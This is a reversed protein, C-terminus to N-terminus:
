PGSSSSRQPPGSTPRRSGRLTPASSTPRASRTPSCPAGCQPARRPAGGTSFWVVMAALGVLTIVLATLQGSSLSGAPSPDGVLWDLLKGFQDAIWNQVDAYIPNALEDALQRRAEDADPILPPSM